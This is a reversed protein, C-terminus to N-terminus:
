ASAPANTGAAAHRADLEARVLAASARTIPFRWVLLAAVALLCTPVIIYALRMRFLTETSQLSVNEQYGSWLLMYGSLGTVVAAGVKFVLAFAAGFMGERRRGSILEDTDCVDALASGFLLWVCSLGPFILITPILQLYPHKPTILFWNLFFGCAAMSLGTMMIQRKDYRKGLTTIVPISALGLLQQSTGYWGNLTAGFSKDGGAVYYINVYTMFPTSLLLGVLVVFVAAVLITFPKNSVTLAIAERLPIPAQKQAEPRERCFFAPALGTLLIIVATIGGVYRVGVIENGGFIPLFSLKYLWPMLLGGGYAFYMRWAMVRTRDHYDNTLEYGLASYPISYFAYGIFLLSSTALFWTFIVGHSAHIPPLWVLAFFLGCLIAGVFLFPRRRGWRSRTNDSWNGIFPDILADLLRPLAMAYGLWVPSLGLGINYIPLALMGLGNTLLNDTAGGAGWAMKQRLPVVHTVTPTPSPAISATENM